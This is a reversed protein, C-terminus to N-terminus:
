GAAATTTTTTTAAALAPRRRTARRRTEPHPLLLPRRRVATTSTSTSTGTRTRCCGAQTRLQHVGPRQTHQLAQLHPPFPPQLLTCPPSALQAPHAVCVHMGPTLICPARHRGCLPRGRVFLCMPATTMMAAHPFLVARRSAAHGASYCLVFRRKCCTRPGAKNTVKMGWVDYGTVRRGGERGWPWLRTAMARSAAWAECSSNMLGPCPLHLRLRLQQFSALVRSEALSDPAWAVSKYPRRSLALSAAQTREVARLPLRAPMPFRFPVLTPCPHHHAAEDCQCRWRDRNPDPFTRGARRWRDRDKATSPM